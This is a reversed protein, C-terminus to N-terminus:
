DRPIFFGLSFFFGLVVRRVVTLAVAVTAVLRVIAWSPLEIRICVAAGGLRDAPISLIDIWIRICICLGLAHLINRTNIKIRICKKVWLSAALGGM